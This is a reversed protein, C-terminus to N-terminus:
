GLGLGLRIRVRIRVRDKVRVRDRVKAGVRVLGVRAGVRVRALCARGGQADQVPGSSLVGRAHPSSRSFPTLPLLLVLARRHGCITTRSSRVGQCHVCHLSQAPPHFFARRPVGM